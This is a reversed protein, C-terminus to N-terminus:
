GAASGRLSKIRERAFDFEIWTDMFSEMAKKYNQLAKEKDGSGEDWFGLATHFVVLDEPSKEAEMKLSDETRKGLLSESVARYWPDRTRRGFAELSILAEEKHGMRHLIEPELLGVSLRSANQRGERKLFARAYELAPAWDEEMTSYFTLGVLADGNDPHSEIIKELIERKEKPSTTNEQLRAGSEALETSSKEKATQDKQVALGFAEVDAQYGAWRAEHRLSALRMQQVEELKAKALFFEWADKDATLVAEKLLKESDVWEEREARVLGTVYHLWSKESETDWGKLASKEDVLGELVRALYGLFESPSRWDLALLEERHPNVSSRGALWDITFLMLKALTNEPDLSLSQTFLRKAGQGDGASLHMVGATMVLSPDFSLMLETDALAMARAWRGQAAMETIRKIKDEVSLDLLGNWKVQGSRIDQLFTAAKTIPLVM